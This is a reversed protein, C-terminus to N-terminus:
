VTLYRHMCLHMPELCIPWSNRQCRRAFWAEGCACTVWFFIFSFLTPPL